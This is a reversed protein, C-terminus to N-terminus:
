KSEKKAEEKEKILSRFFAPFFKLLTNYWSLIKVVQPALLKESDYNPVAQGFIEMAKDKDKIEKASIPEGKLTNFLSSFVVDLTTTQAKDALFVQLSDLSVLQTRNSNKAVVQGREDLKRLAFGNRIPKHFLYLGPEGVIICAKNIPLKFSM